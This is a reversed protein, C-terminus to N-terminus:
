KRMPKEKELVPTYEYGFKENIVCLLGEIVPFFKRGYVNVQNEDDWIHGVTHEGKHDLMIPILNKRHWSVSGGDIRGYSYGAVLGHGYGNIVRRMATEWTENIEVDEENEFELPEEEARKKWYDRDNAWVIVAGIPIAFAIVGMALVSMWAAALFFANALGM